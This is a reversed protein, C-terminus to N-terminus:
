DHFFEKACQLMVDGRTNDCKAPDAEVKLKLLIGDEVLCAYRHTPVPSEPPADVGLMRAFSGDRDALTEIKGSAKAKELVSAGWALAQVPEAASAVCFVKDVGADGLAAAAEVYSPVHANACVSGMNPVGFVVCRKGQTKFLLSLLLFLFLNLTLKIEDDTTSLFFSFYRLALELDFAASQAAEQVRISRITGCSCLFLRSSGRSCFLAASSLEALYRRSTLCYSTGEGKM